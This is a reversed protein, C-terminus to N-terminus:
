KIKIGGERLVKINGDSIDIVTSPITSLKVDGEVYYDIKDGFISNIEEFTNLEKEGSENVSTTTLINFKDLIQLAIQSNPMRFSIKESGSRFIITLAGPWYKHILDLVNNPIEIGLDKIQKLSSCLNALPKNLPRNKMKYIKSIAEQDNYLAGIGYVTDTPFCIVKGILDERNLKIFESVKLKEM